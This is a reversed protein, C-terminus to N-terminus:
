EVAMEKLYAETARVRKQLAKIQRDADDAFEKAEERKAQKSRRIQAIREKIESIDSRAEDIKGDNAHEPDTFIALERGLSEALEAEFDDAKPMTNM